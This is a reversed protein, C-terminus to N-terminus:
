SSPPSIEWASRGDLDTGVELGLMDLLTPAIDAIHLSDRARPRSTVFVGDSGPHDPLYGHASALRRGYGWITRTFAFPLDLYFILNGYRDDPMLVRHRRLDAESLVRGVGLGDLREGIQVRESESDVWLRIFNTDIVHLHRGLDIGNERLLDIPDLRQVDHHGHDSWVVLELNPDHSRMATFREEILRDVRGLLASVEPSRQGHAHSAHDIEGAFLYTLPRADGEPRWAEIAALGTVRGRAMGVIEFPTHASRMQDFITPASELYGPESWLRREAIDLQPLFRWPVHVPYPIGFWSSTRVFRRTIKTAAVHLALNDVRDLFRLSRLWRFPSREEDRQWVFWLGHRDPRLGTYMSAHCTISYGLETQLRRVTQQGALFPMHDIADAGLGDLFVALVSGASRASRQADL